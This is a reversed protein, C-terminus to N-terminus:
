PRMVRAKDVTSTNIAITVCTKVSLKQIPCSWDIDGTTLPSRTSSYKIDQFNLTVCFPTVKYVGIDCVSITMKQNTWITQVFIQTPWSVLFQERYVLHFSPIFQKRTTWEDTRGCHKSKEKIDQFPLSPIEDFKTSM